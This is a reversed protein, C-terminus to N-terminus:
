GLHQCLPPSSLEEKLQREIINGFQKIGKLYTSVVEQHGLQIATFLGSMGDARKAGLLELIVGPDIIDRFQKIGEMYARIAKQHGNRLAIFLGPMGDGRKAALLGWIVKPDIIDRFQKIVEMYVRIAEQHGHQLAMFLGPAGDRRKAALLEWIVEPDIIDRFQKIGEMYARIAEQYGDQLAIFLGPTGDGRKAALLEWIVGPDIIGPFQKIGAVFTSVAEQHGNALAKFLGPTGDGRKAALLEWIVEPYVMDRFQKIGELFAKIAEQHGNQLAMFLGPTGDGSKAAFLEWIVRPDIIDRFQKIGQVFSSVAEQHGNAFAMFLGPLGNKSKAAFLATLECLNDSRVESLTTNLSDMFSNNLQGYRMLLYLLSPTLAALVTADFENEAEVADTSMLVSAWGQGIAYCKQGPTSIFQNLTLQQLIEENSVIARQVITTYNPDYWEIKIAPGTTPLLKIVMVHNETNLLWIQSSKGHSAQDGAGKNTWVDYLAQGFHEADFYVAVKPIGKRVPTKDLQQDTKIAANNRINDISAVTNFKGGPEQTKGQTVNTKFGFCGTAFAYALHRCMILRDDTRNKAKCNLKQVPGKSNYCIVSADNMSRNESPSLPKTSGAIYVNFPRAQKKLQQIKRQLLSTNDLLSSDATNKARVKIASDVSNEKATLKGKETTQEPVLGAYSIKGEVGAQM